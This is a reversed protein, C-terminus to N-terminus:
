NSACNWRKWMNPVSEYLFIRAGDIGRLCEIWYKTYKFYQTNTPCVITEENIWCLLLHFLLICIAFSSFFYSFNLSYKKKDCRGEIEIYIFIYSICIWNEFSVQKSNRRQVYCVRYSRIANKKWEENNETQRWKKKKSM